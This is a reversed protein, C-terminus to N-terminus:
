WAQERLPPSCSGLPGPCCPDSLRYYLVVLLGRPPCEGSRHGPELDEPQFLAHTGLLAEWKTLIVKPVQNALELCFIQVRIEPIQSLTM